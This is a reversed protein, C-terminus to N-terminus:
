PCSGKRLTTEESPSGTTNAGSPGEKAAGRGYGPRTGNLPPGVGASSFCGAAGIGGGRLYRLPPNM